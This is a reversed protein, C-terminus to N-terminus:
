FEFSLESFNQKSVAENHEDAVEEVETKKHTFFIKKNDVSISVEGGLIVVEEKHAKAAGEVNNKSTHVVEVVMAPKDHASDCAAAEGVFNKVTAKEVSNDATLKNVRVLKQESM